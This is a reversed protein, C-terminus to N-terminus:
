ALLQELKRLAEDAARGIEIDDPAAGCAGLLDIVEQGAATIEDM